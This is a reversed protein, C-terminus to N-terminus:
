SWKLEIILDISKVCVTTYLLAYMCLGCLFLFYFLFLFLALGRLVKNLHTVKGYIELVKYFNPVM